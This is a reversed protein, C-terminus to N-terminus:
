HQLTYLVSICNWHWLILSICITLQLISIQTLYCSMTHLRTVSISQRNGSKIGLVEVTIKEQIRNISMASIGHDKELNAEWDSESL